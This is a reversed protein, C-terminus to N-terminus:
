KAKAVYTHLSSELEEEPLADLDIWGEVPLADAPLQDRWIAFRLRIRSGQHAGILDFPVRM